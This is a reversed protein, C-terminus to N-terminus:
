KQTGFAIALPWVMQRDRLRTHCHRGARVVRVDYCPSESTNAAHRSLGVFSSHHFEFKFGVQCLAFDLHLRARHGSSASMEGAEFAIGLRFSKFKDGSLRRAILPYDHCERAIIEM